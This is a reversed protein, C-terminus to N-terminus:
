RQVPQVHAGAVEVTLNRQFALLQSQTYCSFSINGTAFVDPPVNAVNSADKANSQQLACGHLMFPWALLNELIRGRGVSKDRGTFVDSSIFTVLPVASSPPIVTGGASFGLDNLRNLEQVSLDPIAHQLGLLVPGATLAAATTLDDNSVAQAIGSLLTEGGETLRIAIARASFQETKEALGRVLKVDTGAVLTNPFGIRIDQLIYQYSQSLNRVNVGIAVYHDAVGKGFIDKAERYDMLYASCYLDGNGNVIAGNKPCIAYQGNNASLVIFDLQTDYFKGGNELVIRYNGPLASPMVSVLGGMQAGNVSPNEFLISKKSDTLSLYNGASVGYCLFASSNSDPAFGNVQLALKVTAGPTSQLSSLSTVKETGALPILESCPDPADALGAQVAGATTLCALFTYMVIRGLTNVTVGLKSPRTLSEVYLLLLHCSCSTSIVESAFGDSADASVPRHPGRREFTSDVHALGVAGEGGTAM